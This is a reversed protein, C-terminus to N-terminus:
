FPDPLVLCDCGESTIPYCWVIADRLLSRTAGFLEYIQGKFFM